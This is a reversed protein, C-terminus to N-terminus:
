AVASFYEFQMREWPTGFKGSGPGFPSGLMPEPPLSRLGWAGAKWDAARVQALYPGPPPPPRM